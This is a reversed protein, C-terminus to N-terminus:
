SAATVVELGRVTEYDRANHTALPCGLELATAAIWADACNIPRGARYCQETIAAWRECLNADSDYVAFRELFRDLLRM